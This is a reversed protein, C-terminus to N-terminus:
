RTQVSFKFEPTLRDLEEEDVLIRFESWQMHRKALKERMGELPRHFKFADGFLVLLRAYEAQQAPEVLGLNTAAERMGRIVAQQVAPAAKPEISRKACIETHIRHIFESISFTTWQDPTPWSQNAIGYASSHDQAGEIRWWQGSWPLVWSQIDQFLADRQEPTMVNCALSTVRPDYFRWILRHGGNRGVLREAVLAALDVGNLESSIWACVYPPRAHELEAVCLDELLEGDSESITSLDILQPMLHEIKELGFPVCPIGALSKDDIYHPRNSPELLVFGQQPVLQWGEQLNM